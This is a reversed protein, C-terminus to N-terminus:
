SQDFDFRHGRFYLSFDGHQHVEQRLEGSATFVPQNTPAAAAGDDQILNAIAFGLAIGLFGTAAALAVM